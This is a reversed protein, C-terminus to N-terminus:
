SLSLVNRPESALLLDDDDDDDDDDDNIQVLTTYSTHSPTLQIM